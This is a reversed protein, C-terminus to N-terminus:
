FLISTPKTFYVFPSKKPQPTKEDGSSSFGEDGGGGGGGGGGRADRGGSPGCDYAGGEEMKKEKLNQQIGGFYVMLNEQRERERREKEQAIADKRNDPVPQHSLLFRIEDQWAAVKHNFPEEFWQFYPCKLDKNFNACIMYLRNPNLSSNSLRLTPTQNCYCALIDWCEEVDKSPFTYHLARLYPEMSDAFLFVPCFPTPCFLVEKKEIDAPPKKRTLPKLHFPCTMLDMLPESIAENFDHVLADISSSEEEEVWAGKENMVYNKEVVTPEPKETAPSPVLEAVIAAHNPLVLASDKVAHNLVLASDTKFKKKSPDKRVYKRKIKTKEESSM